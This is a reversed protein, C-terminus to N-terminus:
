ARTAWINNEILPMGPQWRNGAVDRLAFGSALLLDVVQRNRAADTEDLMELIVNLCEALRVGFGHLVELEYGEVDIKVLRPASLGNAAMYTDLRRIPVEFETRLNGPGSEHLSLRSRDRDSQAALKIFGDTAGAAACVTVLNTLGNLAANRCIRDANYPQPDFAVVKGAPGAATAAVLAHHGVHAGIDVVSDGNEVLKRILGITTPETSGKVFIELQAWEAPDLLMVLGDPLRTPKVVFTDAIASILRDRGRMYPMSYLATLLVRRLKM